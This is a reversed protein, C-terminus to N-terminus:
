VLLRASSPGVLAENDPLHQLMAGFDEDAACDPLEDTWVRFLKLDYAGFSTIMAVDAADRGRVMLIRGLRPVNHRADFTYWRDHLYVECWGSFDGLGEQPVGIDGLYGSVYRAPINMARCFAVLLHAFDRCVGTKERYTDLATKNPRGFKYDFTTRDHVFDCIAQVRPWGPQIHGFTQWAITVLEDSECYRSPALYVLTDDPLDEVASQDAGIASADMPDDLEAIGDAWLTMEGRPAVLRTIRNGFLDHYHTRRVDPAAHVQTASLFRPTADPHPSLALLMPVPMDCSIWIEFGYRILM